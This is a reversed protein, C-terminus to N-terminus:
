RLRQSPERNTVILYKIIYAQTLDCLIISLVPTQVVSRFIVLGHCIRSSWSTRGFAMSFYIMHVHVNYCINLFMIIAMAVLTFELKM